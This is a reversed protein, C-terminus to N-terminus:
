LSLFLIFKYLIRPIILTDVEKSPFFKKKSKILPSYNKVQIIFFVIKADKKVSISKM